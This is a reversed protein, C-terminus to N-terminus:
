AAVAASTPAIAAHHIERVGGPDERGRMRAATTTISTLMAAAASAATLAALPAPPISYNGTSTAGLPLKPKRLKWSCCTRDPSRVAPSASVTQDNPKAHCRRQRSD